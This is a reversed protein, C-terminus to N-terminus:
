FRNLWKYRRANDGFKMAIIIEHSGYSHHMMSNFSIDFAYGFYFKDVRVGGMIILASGTRFSLGAWYDEYFFAKATIDVQFAGQQTTKMLVSPELIVDRSVEFNYGGMLYFHRYLKYKDFGVGGFKLSSQFLQDASLGAYMRQNSYYVGINADPIFMRNDMANFFDDNPDLIRAEDKNIRFQWITGSLGFSLQGEEILIHYAYTLQIGTRSTLGNRDNFVYGGVGVRGARSSSPGDLRVRTKRNIFSNKLIRTQASAAFTLPSEKIGIWQKRTTLNFSTYGESGAVAPNILFKNMM